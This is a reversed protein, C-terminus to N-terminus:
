TYGGAYKWGEQGLDGEQQEAQCNEPLLDLSLYWGQGLDETRWPFSVLRESRTTNTGPPKPGGLTGPRAKEKSNAGSSLKAEKRVRLDEAQSWRM